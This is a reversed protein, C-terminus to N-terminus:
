SGYELQPAMVGCSTQKRSPDMLGAGNASPKSGNRRDRLFASIYCANYDTTGTAGDDHRRGALGADWFARVPNRWKAKIVTAPRPRTPRRGGRRISIIGAGSAGAAGPRWVWWDDRRGSGQGRGMVKMIPASFRGRGRRFRIRSPSTIWGRDGRSIVERRTKKLILRELAESDKGEPARGGRTKRKEEEVIDEARQRSNENATQCRRAQHGAENQMRDLRTEGRALDIVVGKM